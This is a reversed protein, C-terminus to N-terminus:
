DPLETRRRHVLVIGLVGRYAVDADRLLNGDQGHWIEITEFGQTDEVRQQRSAGEAGWAKKRRPSKIGYSEAAVGFATERLEPCRETHKASCREAFEASTRAPASSAGFLPGLM